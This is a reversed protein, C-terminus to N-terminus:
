GVMEDETAREEEQGQVKGPVPDKGILWSKADSSWLIPIEAEVVTRGTFM